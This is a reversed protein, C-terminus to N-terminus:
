PRHTKFGITHDTPHGSVKGSSRSGKEFQRVVPLEFALTYDSQKRKERQDM